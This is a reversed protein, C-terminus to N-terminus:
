ARSSGTAKSLSTLGRGAQRNQHLAARVGLWYFYDLAPLCLYSFLNPHHVATWNMFKMLVEPTLPSVRSMGLLMARVLRWKVSAQAYTSLKLEHFMEPDKSALLVATRGQAEKDRALGFFDKAYHQYALAAPSYILKVGLRELRRWLELDENGYIQFAEDFCGAAILIERRISFNGSYFDRLRFRYGPQELRELHRNFKEGVYRTVPSSSATLVIPVAGLVGLSTDALHAVWHAQLFGPVPQMDDDLLVVLEGSALRIGANCAAARGRKPQWVSRLTYSAPFCAVVEDTSDTSGDISIIAEFFESSFTQSSLAYLLREVCDRRQHTPVVVSIRLPVPM